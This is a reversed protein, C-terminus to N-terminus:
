TCGLPHGDMAWLFLPKKHEAAERQAALLDIRWPISRWPAAPDPTLQQQLEAFRPETLPATAGQAHLLSTALALLLPRGPHLMAAAYSASAPLNVEPLEFRRSRVM